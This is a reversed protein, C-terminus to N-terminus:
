YRPTALFQQSRQPALTIRRMVHFWETVQLAWFGGTIEQNRRHEV